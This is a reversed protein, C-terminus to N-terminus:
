ELPLVVSFSSGVGPASQVEIRGGMSQVISLSISLGLGTGKGAEKTTYFPNFAKEMQEARMGRGTDTVTGRIWAGNRRTTLTITGPADLADGANNILNLFVQFLQDRDTMLAPLDAAYDRVLRINSVEFEKEKLGSLVEDLIQNLNVPELKPPDQRVFSLLKQTVHRARFVAEDIRDLEKGILEPTCALGFQPDLMDRILGSESSIIALPNNIEHAVGGALEGVAALKGAHILQSHLEARSKEALQMRRVLRHTTGWTVGILLVGLLAAGGLMIRRAQYMAAYAVRLPQRVVLVWPVEGLWAYAVLETDGHASIENAGSGNPRPPRYGSDGALEGRGPAVIQYRGQRNILAADVGQGRNLTRLFSSFPHPDLVARLVYPKGDFIQKVAITFHLKRRFGLYIDSIYYDKDQGM